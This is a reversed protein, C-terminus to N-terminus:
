LEQSILCRRIWAIKCSGNGAFATRIAADQGAISLKLFRDWTAIPILRFTLSGPDNVVATCKKGNCNPCRYTRATLAKGYVPDALKALIEQPDIRSSHKSTLKGATECIRDFTPNEHLSVFVVHKGDLTQFLIEGYCFDSLTALSVKRFCRRCRRQVFGVRRQMYESHPKLGATAVYCETCSLVYM